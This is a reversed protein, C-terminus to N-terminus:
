KLINKVLDINYCFEESLEKLQEWELNNIIIQPYKQEISNKIFDSVYKAEFDKAENVSKCINLPRIIARKFRRIDEYLARDDSRGDKDHTGIREGFDKTYGFYHKAADTVIDYTVIQNRLEIINSIGIKNIEDKSYFIVEKNNFSIPELNSLFLGDIKDGYIPFKSFDLLKPIHQKRSNEIEARIKEIEIGSDYKKSTGFIEKLNKMNNKKNITCLYMFFDLYGFLNDRNLM